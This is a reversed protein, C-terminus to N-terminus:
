RPADTAKGSPRPAGAALTAEELRAVEARVADLMADLSAVNQQRLASVEARLVALERRVEDLHVQTDSRLLRFAPPLQQLENVQAQLSLLDGRNRDIDSWFGSAIRATAGNADTQRKLWPLLLRRLLGRARGTLGPGAALDDGTLDHGRHLLSLDPPAGSSASPESM